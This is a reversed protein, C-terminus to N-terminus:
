SFRRGLTVVGAAAAQAAAALLFPVLYSSTGDRLWGFVLPAFAFVAQNIATVLAVVTNVDAPRFERQAILPPLLNLNGVGLGFLVCGAALTAIGSGFALLLSGLAQMAFNAAAALRRDAEGLLRALLSRGVLACIGVLSIASAALGSGFDPALKAILHAFLGIQAFMGLAFALSLTRFAPQRILAARPSAIDGGRMGVALPPTDRLFLFVLPCLMMTMAGALLIGAGGLGLVGILATWLPAFALGGVSAGNFALSIARARDKDFWPAVIANLAAGSTAAWGAGSLLLAPLLQWAAQANAWVVAGASALLAGSLTVRAVGFRRYAQPLCTILIASLLFHATVASSITSISWGHLRHLTPLYVAPGFFGIGWGFVAIAFAVWAVRWKM